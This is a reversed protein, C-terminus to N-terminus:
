SEDNDEEKRKIKEISELLSDLNSGVKNELRTLNNEYKQINVKATDIKNLYKKTDYYGKTYTPDYGLLLNHCFTIGDTKKNELIDIESIHKLDSFHLALYFEFCPNTIFIEVNNNEAEKLVKMFQSTSFSEKDRDIILILRDTSPNYPSSEDRLSTFTNKFDSLGSYVLNKFATEKLQKLASEVVAEDMIQNKNIVRQKTLLDNFEKKFLSVDLDSNDRKLYRILFPIFERYTLDIQETSLELKIANMLVLPNSWGLDTLDREFPLYEINKINSFLEKFYLPETETGEMMVFIKPVLDLYESKRELSSNGIRM